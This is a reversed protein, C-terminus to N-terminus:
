VSLCSFTVSGNSQECSSCGCPSTSFHACICECDPTDACPSGAPIQQCSTTVPIAGTGGYGGGSVICFSRAVGAGGVGAGGAGQNAPSDCAAVALISFVAVVGV